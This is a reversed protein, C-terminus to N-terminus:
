HGPKPTDKADNKLGKVTEQNKGVLYYTTTCHNSANEQLCKNIYNFPYGFKFLKNMVDGNPKFTERFLANKLTMDMTDKPRQDASASDGPLRKDKKKKSKKNEKDAESDDSDRNLVGDDFRNNNHAEYIRNAALVRAQFVIIPESSKVLLGTARIVDIQEVERNSISSCQPALVSSKTSVNRKEPDETSGLVALPGENSGFSNFDWMDLRNDAAAEDKTKETIREGDKNYFKGQVYAEDMAKQNAPDIRDEKTTEADGYIYETQIYRKEAESFIEINYASPNTDEYGEDKDIQLWPHRLIQGITLRQEVDVELIQTILEIVAPSATDRALFKGKVIQDDLENVM